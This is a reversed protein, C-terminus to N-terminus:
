KKDEKNLEVEMGLQKRLWREPSDYWIKGDSIQWSKCEKTLSKLLKDIDTIRFVLSETDSYRPVLDANWKDISCNREIGM